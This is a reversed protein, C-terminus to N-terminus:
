LKSPPAIQAAIAAAIAHAQARIEPIATSEWLEGRRLAGLTWLDGVSGDAARVRGDHDTALGMGLPGAGAQGAARSRPNRGLATSWTLSLGRRATPCICLCRARSTM